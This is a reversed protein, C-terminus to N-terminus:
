RAKTRDIREVGEFLVQVIFDAERPGWANIVTVNLTQNGECTIPAKLDYFIGHRISGFAVDALPLDGKWFRRTEYLSWDIKYLGDQTIRIIGMPDREGSRIIQHKIRILTFTRDTLAVSGRGEDGENLGVTINVPYVIPSFIEEDQMVQAAEPM